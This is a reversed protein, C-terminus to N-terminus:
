ASPRTRRTRRALRADLHGALPSERRGGVRPPRCPLLEEELQGHEPQASRGPLRVRRQRHRPRLDGGRREAAVDGDDAPIERVPRGRVVDVEVVRGRVVPAPQGVQRHRHVVGCGRRRSSLEVDGAAVAPRPHPQARGVDEVAVAPAGERRHGAHAAGGSRCDDGPLEVDDAADPRSPQRRPREREVELRATPSRNGPGRRALM